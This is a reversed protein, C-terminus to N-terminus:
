LNKLAVVTHHCVHIICFRVQLNWNSIQISLIGLEGTVTAVHCSSLTTRLSLRLSEFKTRSTLSCSDNVTLSLLSTVNCIEGLWGDKCRCERGHVIPNESVLIPQCKADNMCDNTDCGTLKISCNKGAYGFACECRYDDLKDVCTAGNQCPTLLQCENIEDSCNKGQYGAKCHCTFDNLGDTCGVSNVCVSTVNDAKVCDDPNLECNSGFSGPLHSPHTPPSDPSQLVVERQTEKKDRHRKRIETDGEGRRRGKWKEADGFLRISCV